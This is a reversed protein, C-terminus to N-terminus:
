KVNDIVVVLNNELFVIIDRSVMYLFIVVMLLYKIKKVEM